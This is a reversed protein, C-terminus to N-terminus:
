QTQPIKCGHPGGLVHGWSLWVFEKPGSDIQDDEVKRGSDSYKEAQPIEVLSSKDSEEDEQFGYRERNCVDNRNTSIEGSCKNSILTCTPQCDGTTGTGSLFSLSSNSQQAFLGLRAHNRAREDVACRVKCRVFFIDGEEESDSAFAAVRKVGCVDVEEDGEASLEVSADGVSERFRSTNNSSDEGKGSPM